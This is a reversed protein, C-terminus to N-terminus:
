GYNFLSKILFELTENVDHPMVDKSLHWDRNFYIKWLFSNASALEIRSLLLSAYDIM